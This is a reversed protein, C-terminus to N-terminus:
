KIFTRVLENIEVEFKQTKMNIFWWNKETTRYRDCATDVVRFAERFDTFFAESCLETVFQNNKTIYGNTVDGNATVKVAKIILIKLLNNM